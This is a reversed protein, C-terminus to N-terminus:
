DGKLRSGNKKWLHKEYYKSSEIMWNYKESTSRTKLCHVDSNSHKLYFLFVQPVQTAWDTLYGIGSKLESWSRLTTLSLGVEPETSLLSDAQSGREEEAKGGVGFFYLYIFLCVFLFVWCSTVLINIPWYHVFGSIWRGWFINYESIINWLKLNRNREDIYKNIYMYIVSFLQHLFSQSSESCSFKINM